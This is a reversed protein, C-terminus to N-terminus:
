VLGALGDANFELNPGCYGCSPCRLPHGYTTDRVMGYPRGDLDAGLSNSSRTINHESVKGCLACKQQIHAFTTM